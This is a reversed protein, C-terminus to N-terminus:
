KCIDKIRNRINENEEEVQQKTLPTDESAYKLPMVENPFAEMLNVRCARALNFTMDNFIDPTSNPYKNKCSRYEKILDSYLLLSDHILQNELLSSKGIYLEAFRQASKDAETVNAAYAFKASADIMETYIDIRAKYVMAGNERIRQQEEQKSQTRYTCVGLLASFVLLVATLTKTIADWVKLKIELKLYDPNEQM